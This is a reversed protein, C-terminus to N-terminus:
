VKVGEQTYILAKAQAKTVPRDFTYTIDGFTWDIRYKKLIQVM